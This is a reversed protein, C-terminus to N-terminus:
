FIKKLNIQLGPISGCKIKDEIEFHGADEYFEEHLIFKDITELDPDVIWYEPIKFEEYLAKKKKLDMIRNSPSIIEIVFDPSGTINKETIISKNKDAVFIIDPQIVNKSSLIVDYPAAFVEGMNEGELFSSIATLLKVLIRQHKTRPSPSMFLEGEIIEYRKGDDPFQTYDEYTFEVSSKRKPQLIKRRERKKAELNM